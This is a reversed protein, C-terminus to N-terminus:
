AARADLWRVTSRLDPYREAMHRLFRMRKPAARVKQLTIVMSRRVLPDTEAEARAMTSDQRWRSSHSEAQVAWCRIPARRGNNEAIATFLNGESDGWAGKRGRLSRLLHLDLGDTRDTPVDNLQGLMAEVIRPTTLGVTALYEASLRPDINALEPDDALEAAAYDDGRNKLSRVIFRFRYRPPDPQGVIDNDWADHLEDTTRVINAQLWYGLSALRGDRLADIADRPNDYVVTKNVSRRLGQGSLLADFPGIVARCTPEDPAMCRYDDMWRLHEAGFSILMRDVPILFANGLVGCAEPGIPIGVVGDMSVWKRLGSLIVAIAHMDCGLDHLRSELRDLDISAYYGAIDTSCMANLNGRQLLAIATNTFREWGIKGFERFKWAAGDPTTRYGFARNSLRQEVRTAIRGAGARVLALDQPSLVVLDRLKPGNPYPFHLAREWVPAGQSAGMTEALARRDRVFDLFAIVDPVEFESNWTSLAALNQELEAPRFSRRRDGHGPGEECRRRATFCLQHDARICYFDAKSRVGRACAGSLANPSFAHRPVGM